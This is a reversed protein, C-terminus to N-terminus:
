SSRSPSRRRCSASISSSRTGSARISSISCPTSPAASTSTSPCGTGSPRKAGLAGRRQDPRPLAPLVLVLRAWQPMTNADRLVRRGDTCRHDRDLGERARAAARIRRGFAQLRRARAAHAAADSEPILEVRATKTTCSPSPNAGTDSAASSGTACSTRSRARRGVGSRGRAVRDDEVERRRTELGDLFGSNTAPAPRRTRRRRSTAGPWWRSSRCSSPGRSPGTANTTVPCRWSRVRAMAPSCTTPSGSRSRQRREGPQLATAGTAVGTKAGADAMRDRESRRATRRSTPRSPEARQADTTIEAVLPHEPALVMYTAGFLTDPRTTFVEIEATADDSAAGDGTAGTSGYTRELAFRM